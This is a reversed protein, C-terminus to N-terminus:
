CSHRRGDYARYTGSAADYTRYHSCDDSRTARKRPEHDARKPMAAAEVPKDAPKGIEPAADQPPAVAELQRATNAEVVAAKQEAAGPKEDVMSREPSGTSAEHSKKIKPLCDDDVAKTM